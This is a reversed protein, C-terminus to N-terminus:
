RFAKGGHRHRIGEELGPGHKELHKGKGMLGGEWASSMMGEKTQWRLPFLTREKYWNDELCLDTQLM